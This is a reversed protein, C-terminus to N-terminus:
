HLSFLKPITKCAHNQAIGVTHSLHAPHRAVLDEADELGLPEGGRDRLIEVMQDLLGDVDALVQLAASLYKIFM